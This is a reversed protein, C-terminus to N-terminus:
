GSWPACDGHGLELGGRGVLFRGFSGGVPSAVMSAASSRSSRPQALRGTSRRLVSRDGLWGVSSAGRRSATSAAGASGSVSSISQAAATSPGVTSAAALLAASRRPRGPRRASRSRLRSRLRPARLRAWRGRGLLRGVRVGLGDDLGSRPGDAPEDGVSEARGTDAVGEGDGAFGEEAQEVRELAGPDADDPRAVFAGGREHGLGVPLQGTARRDAEARAGDAARVQRDADVRRALVRGRHERDDALDLPRVLAALRELLDVLDPREAPEGLPGGFRPGRGVDDRHHGLGGLLRQGATRARDEQRERLVQEVLRHGVVDDDVGAAQGDGAGALGLDAGDDLEQGRGLARDDEGAAADKAGAGGGLQRTEGLQELHRDDGGPAAGVDDGVVM